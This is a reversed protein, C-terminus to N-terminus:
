DVELLVAEIFDAKAASYAERDDGQQDALRRKLEAYAGALDPRARLVDRFALIQEWRPHEREILHLHAVRRADNALVYFRRWPRQDLEPAILRWGAEGLTADAAGASALSVVPAALDVISKAALGPIATSGIDRVDGDLWPRLRQQLDLCLERARQPWSPDPEVVEIAETAWAPWSETM